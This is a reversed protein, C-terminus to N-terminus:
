MEEAADQLAQVFRRRSAATSLLNDVPLGLLRGLRQALDFDRVGRYQNTTRNQVYITQSDSDFGSEFNDMMEDIWGQPLDRLRCHELSWIDDGTCEQLLMLAKLRNM